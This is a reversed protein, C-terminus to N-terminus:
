AAQRMTRAMDSFFREGDGTCTVGADVMQGLLAAFNWPTMETITFRLTGDIRYGNVHKDYALVAGFGTRLAGETAESYYGPMTAANALAEIMAAHLDQRCGYRDKRFRRSRSNVSFYRRLTATLDQGATNQTTTM